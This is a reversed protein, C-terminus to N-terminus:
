RLVLEIGGRTIEAAVGLERVLEGIKQEASGPDNEVIRTGRHTVIMRPVGFKQCWTLQTRVPTHRAAERVAPFAKGSDQAPPDLDFVMRDPRDLDGARSLWVHPPYPLGPRGPVGSHGRKSCVVQLQSGGEKLEVEVSDIWEPFHEPLEKQYFGEEGIGDPYREM